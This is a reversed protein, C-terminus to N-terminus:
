QVTLTVTGTQAIAGSIGTVTITYTGATTGPNGGGGGGGGSGGGGCALVGCTLTALLALSGLVTRWKRRGAPIGFLLICALAAGGSAYPLENPRRPHVLAGSAPATTNITLTATAAGTGTISAPTSTGFSLTPLDQAGAPSVTIAATLAVSGTFGGSPILFITSTNAATAGPAATVATSSLAFGPPPINITYVVSAVASPGYGTATAMALINESKSVAIPGTYVTSSTTPTTGNTTFYIAAGNTADSITVSQVTSYTGAALSFVPTAAPWIAPPPQYEWLDNLNGLLNGYFRNFGSGGFLWLNGNNAIWGAASQRAGPFDGAGALGLNGYVGVQDETNSGAVWVWERAAPSFVWLDNLEDISSPPDPEGGFLWFNGSSDAAAVAFARGGPENGPAPVQYTGFTGPWGSPYPPADVSHGGQWTWETTSLDFEWFDDLYSIQGNADAGYGGMLWLSGGRGYWAAAGTRGGAANAKAAVGETGYVGPQGCFTASCATADGLTSSGSWWTWQNSSPNFQWLDNLYGRNGVSDYGFGGFLWLKGNGDTWTVSEYRGGPFNGAAPTGLTGYVGPTTATSSIGSVGGMWAWELTSPNFKWLDDFYSRYGGPEVGGYGGLLWFNGSQDTWTAPSIRGGPINGAAPVGLAGYVGPEGYISNGIPILTSSGSIWAWEGTAPNLEWLDNLYGDVSYANISDVGVGGFLWFNGKSDTWYASSYRNGPTNRPAPTGLTGYIGTGDENIGGSGNIWTWENPATTQAGSSVSIGVFALLCVCLYGQLWGHRRVRM